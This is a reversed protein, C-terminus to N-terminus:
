LSDLQSIWGDIPSSSLGPAAARPSQAVIPWWDNFAISAHLGSRYAATTRFSGGYGGLYSGSGGYGFGSSRTIARDPGLPLGDVSLFAQGDERIINSLQGSPLRHLNNRSVSDNLRDLIIVQRYGPSMGVGSSLGRFSPQYPANNWQAEAGGSPVALAVTAALLAVSWLNKM